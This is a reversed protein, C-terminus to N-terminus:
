RLLVGFSQLKKRGVSNANVLLEASEASEMSGTTDKLRWGIEIIINSYRPIFRFFM